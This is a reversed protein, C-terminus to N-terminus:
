LEPVSSHTKLEIRSDFSPEDYLFQLGQTGDGTGTGSREVALAVGLQDGAQVTGLTFSLPVNIETWTTPWSTQSFPFYSLGQTPPATNLAAEDTGASSRIFLWVCIAGQYPQQNVTQTWFNLTGTGDLDIAAGSPLPPTLWKHIKLFRDAEAEPASAVETAYPPCGASAGPIMQLGKDQGPNVSPEVDTAYDFLPSETNYAPAEDVMLDPAGPNNGEKVGAACLGRTNHAPHDPGTQDRLAQDCTTDTFWLTWPTADDQGPPLPNTNDVPEVEPDVTQTQIEQYRRAGGVPTNDLRVAVIVRKLDQTGPCDSPSCSEDNEWVVFRYIRGNVDGSSFTTPGPDIAGASVHGGGYLASGNYVVPEPQSGNSAIAFNTGTLRWRPDSIDSTDAPVATLAVQEYPLQKIREMEQQLRDSVVQSQEARFTNRASTAVLSFVALSGLVVILAAVVVEVVTMGREGALARMRKWRKRAADIM